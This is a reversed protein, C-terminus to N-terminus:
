NYRKERIARLSARFSKLGILKDTMSVLSFCRCVCISM